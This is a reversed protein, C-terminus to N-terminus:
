ALRQWRAIFYPFFFRGPLRNYLDEIKMLPGCLGAKLAKPLRFLLSQAILFYGPGGMYSLHQPRFRGGALGLLADHSLAAETAANFYRSDFRYWLRRVGELYCQRNPELMLFLGDPKLLGAVNALTTPLDAVCHHLGGFIMAVDFQETSAMPQTLDCEVAPRGRNKRFAECAPASIDYGTVQAEPFWRLLVESNHGSGSALDAVSKGNLDLGTFLPDYYFRDRYAMSDADYYHDEYEDHIAEYLRKQASAAM